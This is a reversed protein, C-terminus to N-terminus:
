IMILSSRLIDIEKHRKEINDIGKITKTLPNVIFGWENLKKLFDSQKKFIM